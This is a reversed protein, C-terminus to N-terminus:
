KKASKKSVASKAKDLVKKTIKNINSAMHLADPNVQKIMPEIKKFNDEQTKKAEDLKSSLKGKVDDSLEIGSLVEEVVEGILDAVKDAVANLKSSKMFKDVSAPLKEGLEKALDPGIMQEIMVGVGGLGALPGPEPAKPAAPVKIDAAKKKGSLVALSNELKDKDAGVVSDVEQDQGDGDKANYKFKNEPKIEKGKEFLFTTPMGQVGFKESHDKFKDVNLQIIEVEPNAKAVDDLTNDFMKCFGCWDAYFEIAKPKGKHTELLKDLEDQNEPKHKAAESIGCFLLITLLMLRKM